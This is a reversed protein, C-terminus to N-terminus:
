QFRQRGVSGDGGRGPAMEEGSSLRVRAEVWTVDTPHEPLRYYRVSVKPQDYLACFLPSVMDMVMDMDMDM